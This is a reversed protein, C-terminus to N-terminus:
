SPTHVDVQADNINGGGLLFKKTFAAAAGEAIQKKLRRKAKTRRRHSRGIQDLPKEPFPVTIVYFNTSGKTVPFTEWFADYDFYFVEAENVSRGLQEENTVGGIVAIKLAAAISVATAVLLYPPAIDHCARTAIRITETRRIRGQIRGILLAPKAGCGIVTGPVITFSIEYIPTGNTDFTLSIDGESNWTPNFSVSISYTGGDLTESWLVSRAQTITEYFDEVVHNMLYQHHFKLIQRRTKKDFRKAL